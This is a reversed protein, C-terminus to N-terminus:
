NIHSNEQIFKQWAYFDGMSMEYINNNKDKLKIITSPLVCKGSQRCWSSIHRNGDKMFSKIIKKQYPRLKFNVIKGESVIKCYKELFYVPDKKCKIIEQIQWAELELDQEGRLLKRNSGFYKM